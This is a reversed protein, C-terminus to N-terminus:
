IGWGFTVEIPGPLKRIDLLDVLYSAVLSLYLRGCHTGDGTKNRSSEKANDTDVWHGFDDLLGFFETFREAYAAM